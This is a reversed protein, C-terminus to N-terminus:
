LGALRVPAAEGAGLDFMVRRTTFDIAVRRFLRLESMGLLLAPREDLNLAAFSPSDAYALTVNGIQLPAISLQHILGFDVPLTQGTVSLLTAGDADAEGPTATTPASTEHAGDHTGNRRALARQLARNGISTEAGTDIVVDAAVGDIRARTLILQGGRRRATVVIDFNGDQLAAASVFTIRHAAFDLLVRQGQLGDLGVIGEAGLDAGDLLPTAENDVARKGLSLGVLAVTDVRRTGAVGMVNRQAGHPLGLRVALATSLVTTEAGTDVLFDYPGQGRIRVAVTM